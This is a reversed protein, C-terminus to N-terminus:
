AAGSSFNSFSSLDRKARTGHRRKLLNLLRGRRKENELFGRPDFKTFATM